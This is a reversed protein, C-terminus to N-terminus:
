IEIALPQASQFDSITQGADMLLNTRAADEKTLACFWDYSINSMLHSKYEREPYTIESSLSISKWKCFNIDPEPFFGFEAKILNWYTQISLSSQWNLRKLSNKRLFNKIIASEPTCYSFCYFPASNAMTSVDFTHDFSWYKILDDILGFQYQDTLHFPIFKWSHSGSFILRSNLGCQSRGKRETLLILQDFDFNLALSSDSRIKLAYKFGQRKLRELGTLVGFQQIFLNNLGSPGVTKPTENLNLDDIIKKCRSLFNGNSNSWTSLLLHTGPAERKTMAIAMETYPHLPGQMLIACKNASPTRRSLHTTIFKDYSASHFATWGSFARIYKYNGLSSVQRIIDFWWASFIIVIIKNPDETLLTEPAKVQINNVRKGWNDKYICITYELKIGLKNYYDRFEAGAGWGVFKLNTLSIDPYLINIRKLDIPTVKNM